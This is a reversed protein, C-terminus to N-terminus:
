AKGTYKEQLRLFQSYEEAEKAKKRDLEKEDRAAKEKKLKEEYEQLFVDPQALSDASITHYTAGNNGPYSYSGHLDFYCDEMTFNDYYCKERYKDASYREILEEIASFMKEARQNVIAYDNAFDNLQQKLVNMM